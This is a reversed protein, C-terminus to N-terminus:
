YRKNTLNILKNYFLKEFKILRKNNTKRILIFLLFYFILLIPLILFILFNLFFRKFFDKIIIKYTNNKLLKKEKIDYFLCVFSYIFNLFIVSTFYIQIFSQIFSQSM